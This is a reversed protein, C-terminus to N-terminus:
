SRWNRFVEYTAGFYFSLPMAPHQRYLEDLVSRIEAQLGDRMQRRVQVRSLWRLQGHLRLYQSTQKMAADQTREEECARHRKVAGVGYGTAPGSMTHHGAVVGRCRM